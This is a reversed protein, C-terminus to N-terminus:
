NLRRAKSYNAKYRILFILNDNAMCKGSFCKQLHLNANWWDDFSTPYHHHHHYLNQYILLCSLGYLTPFVASSLNASLNLLPYIFVLEVTSTYNHIIDSFLWGSRIVTLSSAELGQTLVLHIM